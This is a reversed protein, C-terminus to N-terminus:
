RTCTRSWRTSTSPRSSRPTTSRRGMPNSRPSHQHLIAVNLANPWWDRNGRARPTNQNADGSFPCKSEASM